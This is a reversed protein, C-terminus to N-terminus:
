ISLMLIHLCASQILFRCIERLTITQRGSSISYLAQLVVGVNHRFISKRNGAVLNGKKSNSLIKDFEWLQVKGSKKNILTVTNVKWELLRGVNNHELLLHTIDGMDYTRFYFENQGIPCGHNALVITYEALGRLTLLIAADTPSYTNM